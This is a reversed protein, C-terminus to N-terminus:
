VKKMTDKTASVNNIKVIDLKDEKKRKIMQAKPTADLFDNGLGLDHKLLKVNIDITWKLKQIIHLFLRDVNM